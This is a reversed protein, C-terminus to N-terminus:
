SKMSPAGYYSRLAARALRSNHHSLTASREIELLAEALANASDVLANHEATLLDHGLSHDWKRGGANMAKVRTEITPAVARCYRTPAYSSRIRLRAAYAEFDFSLPLLSVLTVM